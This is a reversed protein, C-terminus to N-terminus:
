PPNDFSLATALQYTCDYVVGNIILGYFGDGVSVM